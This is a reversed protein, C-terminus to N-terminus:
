GMEKAAFIDTRIALITELLPLIRNAKLPEAGMESDRFILYRGRDAEEALIVLRLGKASIVLEKVHPDDFIRAYTKLYRAKVAAANDSKLAIFDPLFDPRELSQPLSAFKSFPENGSPRAMIDLTAKVPLTEPLTVMVWLAPLKRFTLTDQVAQLDFAHGGKHATMRAFGSPQIEVVVRDFLRAVADFYGARAAKRKKGAQWHAFGLWLTLGLFGSVLLPFASM